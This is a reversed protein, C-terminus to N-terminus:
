ESGTLTYANDAQPHLFHWQKKLTTGNFEDSLETILAGPEDDHLIRPKYRNYEDPQAAPAPQPGASAYFGGRVVPWDEVWDIPDILAPRRTFGPYGDFYPTQQDVAHYLMYDQGADDTFLVNGGPGIWRNGNAAMAFTGGPAFAALDVGNRDLFPGM